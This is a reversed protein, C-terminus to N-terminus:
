VVDLYQESQEHAEPLYNFDNGITHRKQASEVSLRTNLAIRGQGVKYDASTFSPKNAIKKDKLIRKGILRVKYITYSTMVFIGFVSITIIIQLAFLGSLYTLSNNWDEVTIVANPRTKIVEISETKMKQKIDLCTGNVKNCKGM